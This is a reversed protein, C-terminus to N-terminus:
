IVEEKHMHPSLSLETTDSRMLVSLYKLKFIEKSTGDAFVALGSTLAKVCSNPLFM